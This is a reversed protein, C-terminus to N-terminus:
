LGGLDKWNMIGQFHPAQGPADAGSPAEDRCRGDDDCGGLDDVNTVATIFVSLPDPSLKGGKSIKAAGNSLKNVVKNSAWDDAKKLVITTLSRRFIPPEKPPRYFPPPIGVPPSSTTTATVTVKPLPTSNKPDPKPLPQPSNDPTPPPDSEHCDGGESGATCLGQPDWNVIPNNNAYAYNNFSFADGVQLGLPDTSVFRGIAPDFYRAQMYILQTDADGVHSTYGPGDVATGSAQAGFPRYDLTAIINGTADTKALVTGQADTLFYTV